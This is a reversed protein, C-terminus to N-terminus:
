FPVSDDYASTPPLDYGPDGNQPGSGGRRQADGATPGDSIFEGGAKVDSYEPMDPTIVKSIRNNWYTNGNKEYPRNDIAAVIPFELGDFDLWGGTSRLRKAKDSDDKPMIGKAAELMARMKAGAINCAKVMGSSLAERQHPVPLWLNEFWSVGEYTGAVVEIKVNLYLAGDKSAAVIGDRNDGKAPFKPTTVHLRVLVKSGAPVPGYNQTQQEQENNFDLM